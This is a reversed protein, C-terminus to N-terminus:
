LILPLLIVNGFLDWVIQIHLQQPIKRSETCLSNFPSITFIYSKEGVFGKKYSQYGTRVVTAQYGSSLM